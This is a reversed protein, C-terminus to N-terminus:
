VQLCARRKTSKMESFIILLQWKSDALQSTSEPERAFNAFVFSPHYAFLCVRAVPTAEFLCIGSPLPGQLVFAYAVLRPLSNLELIQNCHNNIKSVSKGTLARV